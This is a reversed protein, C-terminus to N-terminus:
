RTSSLANRLRLLPLLFLAALHILFASNGLVLLAFAVSAAANLHRSIEQIDTTAFAQIWGLFGLAGVAGLMGLLNFWFHLTILAQSPWVARALRPLFYYLAAFFSPVIFGYFGLLAHAEILETFRFEASVGRFALGVTLLTWALYGTAAVIVFGLVPSRTASSWGAQALTGHFNIAAIIAPVILMVAAIVGSSQIWVPVPSGVLTAMGTWGGLSVVLWFAISALYYGRVPRGLEKPLLYYLAALAIPTLVLAIIGHFHWTAILPLLIGRAPAWLVGMHGLLHLIPFTIVAAVIYWQSVYVHPTQRRAFAVVAWTAVVLFCGVLFPGTERPLELGAVGTSGSLLIVMAGWTLALNWGIVGLVAIWAHRSEMKGLRHMIWLAVALAANFGFGYILLVSELDRVRGYTLWAFSSLFEPLHLQLSAVLAFLSGLVLWLGASLSLLTLAPALSRDVFAVRGLSPEALSSSPLSTSSSYSM